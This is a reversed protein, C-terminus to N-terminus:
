SKATLRGLGPSQKCLMCVDVMLAKKKEHEIRCTMLYMSINVATVPLAEVNCTDLRGM